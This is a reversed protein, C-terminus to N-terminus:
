MTLPFYPVISERPVSVLRDDRVRLTLSSLRTMLVSPFYRAMNERYFRTINTKNCGVTVRSILDYPVLRFYECPLYTGIPMILWHLPTILDHM